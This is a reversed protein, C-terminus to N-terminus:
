MIQQIIGMGAHILNIGMFLYKDDSTNSGLNLNWSKGEYDITPQKEKLDPFRVGARVCYYEEEVM